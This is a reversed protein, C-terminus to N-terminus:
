QQTDEHTFDNADAQLQSLNSAAISISSAIGLEHDIVALLAAENIGEVGDTKVLDKLVELEETRQKSADAIIAAASEIYLRHNRTVSKLWEQAQSVGDTATDISLKRQKM